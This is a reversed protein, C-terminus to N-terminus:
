SVTPFNPNTTPSAEIFLGGTTNRERFAYLLAHQFMPKVSIAAGIEGAMVISDGDVSPPLLSETAHMESFRQTLNENRINSGTALVM